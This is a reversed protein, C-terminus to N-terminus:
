RRQLRQLRAALEEFRAITHSYFLQWGECLHSRGVSPARNKPCDGMCLPLYRCASCVASHPNKRAGFDAYAPTALLSPFPDRHINGLRLEARVHFDCPFVDGNHEIVLYNRCDGNMACQTPAGALLRSLISDFLRVSVRRTDHAFWEDFIRCLFEGWQGARLSFPLLEGRADFEVCEIYQHFAAGLDRLHRYIDLPHAANAASVLSLVNTDVGHRRLAHYGRLVDAHTAAGGITRRSADHIAAPGDISVGALMKHAHLFEAWSDDILTANTQLANAINAGHRKHRIQLRAAERFFDLGMLTPEGGQWAFCHQRLPLALYARTLTELTGCDMRHSGGGFLAGKDLYFCYRCRLNCDASAPKILLSFDGSMTDPIKPVTFPSYLYKVVFDM